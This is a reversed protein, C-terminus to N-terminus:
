VHEPCRFAGGATATPTLPRESWAGFPVALYFLALVMTPLHHFSFTFVAQFLILFLGMLCSIVLTRDRIDSLRGLLCSIRRAWVLLLWAAGLVGLLGLEVALHLYENHVDEFWGPVGSTGTEPRAAAYDMARESYILALTGPGKGVLMSRLDETAPRGVIEWFVLHSATRGMVQAPNAVTEPLRPHSRVFPVSLFILGAALGFLLSKRQEFLPRNRWILVGGFIVTGVALAALVARTHTCVVVTVMLIFGIIALLKVFGFRAHFITYLALPLVAAEFGAFLASHGQLGHPVWRLTFPDRVPFFLPDQGYFQILGYVAGGVGALLFGLAPWEVSRRTQLCLPMLLLLIALLLDFPVVNLSLPRSVSFATSVSAALIFLAVPPVLSTYLTRTVGLLRGTGALFALLIVLVAVFAAKPATFPDDAALGHRPDCVLPTCLALLTLLLVQARAAV